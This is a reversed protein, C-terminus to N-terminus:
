RDTQVKRFREVLRQQQEPRKLGNLLPDTRGKYVGPEHYNMDTSEYCGGFVALSLVTVIFLKLNM